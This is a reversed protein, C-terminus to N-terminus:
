NRDRSAIRNDSNKDREQGPYSVLLRSTSKTVEPVVSGILYLNADTEVIFKTLVFTKRAIFVLTLVM